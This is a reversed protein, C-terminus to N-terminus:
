FNRLPLPLATFAIEEVLTWLGDSEGHLQSCQATLELTECQRDWTYYTGCIKQICSDIFRYFPKSPQEKM